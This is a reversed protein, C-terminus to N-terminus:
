GHLIPMKITGKHFYWASWLYPSSIESVKSQRIELNTADGIVLTGIAASDLLVTGQQDVSHAARITRVSAGDDTLSSQERMTITMDNYRNANKSDQLTLSGAAGLEASHATITHGNLDLTFVAMESGLETDHM